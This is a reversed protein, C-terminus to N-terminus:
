ALMFLVNYRMVYITEKFPDRRIYITSSFPKWEDTETAPFHDNIVNAVLLEKKIGPTSSLETFLEIFAYGFLYHFDEEVTTVERIYISMARGMTPIPEEM